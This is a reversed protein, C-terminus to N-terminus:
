VPNEVRPTGLLGHPRRTMMAVLIAGFLLQRTVSPQFILRNEWVFAALYITPVLLLFRTDRRLQTLSLVAVILLVFAINGILVREVAPLIVWSDLVGALGEGRAEAEVGEPWVLAVIEHVAFGFAVAAGALVALR